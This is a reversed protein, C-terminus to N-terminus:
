IEDSVRYAQGSYDIIKKLKNISKVMKKVIWLAILVFVLGYGLICAVIKVITKTIISNADEQPIGSKLFAITTIGRLSM